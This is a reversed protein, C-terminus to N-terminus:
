WYSRIIESLEQVQDQLLQHTEKSQLDGNKMGPLWLLHGNLEKEHKRWSADFTLLIIHKFPQQQVDEIWQNIREAETGKDSNKLYSYNPVLMLRGSLETEIENALISMVKQQFALKEAEGDNSFQLSILPILLTDIYEKAGVYKGLDDKRWKM